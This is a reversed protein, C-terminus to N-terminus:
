CIDRQSIKMNQLLSAFIMSSAALISLALVLVIRDENLFLFLCMGVFIGSLIRKTRKAYINKEEVDLLKKTNEVPAFKVIFPIFLLSIVISFSPIWSLPMFKIVTLVVLDMIITIGFCLKNNPAHYGGANVRLPMYSFLFFISELVLGLYFGMIIIILMHLIQIFMTRIGFLYIEREEISIMSRIVLCHVIKEILREFFM